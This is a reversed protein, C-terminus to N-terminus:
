RRQKHNQYYPAMLEGPVSRGGDGKRSIATPLPSSTEVRRYCSAGYPDFSHIEEFGRFAKLKQLPTKGGLWPLSRYNNHFFLFRSLEKLMDEKNGCALSGESIGGFTLKSVLSFLVENSPSTFVSHLLSRERMLSAFDRGSDAGPPAQFPARSLTRIQSIGFPFSRAVFDVFDVAAATTTALYVQAVQLHTNLDVASFIVPELGNLRISLKKTQVYVLFGPRPAAAEIALTLGDLYVRGAHTLEKCLSEFRKPIQFVSSSFGDTGIDRTMNGM